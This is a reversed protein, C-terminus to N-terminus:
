MSFIMGGLAGLILMACAFFAIVFALLKLDNDRKRKKIREKEAMALREEAKKLYNSNILNIIKEETM